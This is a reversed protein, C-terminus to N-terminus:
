AVRVLHKSSTLVDCWDQGEKQPVYVRVKRDVGMRSAENALRRALAFASAQGDFYSDADNDAYIHVAKVTEPVSLVELNRCNVAAWMPQGNRQRVALCTEIGEAIGLETTAEYLRIAGSSLGGSVLKKSESGRAKRGDKLYTRHVTVFGGSPDQVQAVLAPYDAVHKSIGNEAVYYALQPHLRLTAPFEGLSIGRAQLYRTAEDGQELPKSDNWIKLALAKMNKLKLGRASNFVVQAGGISRAVLQEAEVFTIGLCKMLLDFGDGAGCKRCYYDGNGHKDDFTFRDKGNRCVPCAKNRRKLIEADIGSSALISPWRGHARAKLDRLEEARNTKM